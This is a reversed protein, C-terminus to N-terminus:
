DFRVCMSFPLYSGFADLSTYLFDLSSMSDGVAGTLRELYGEILYWFYNLLFLCSIGRRGIWVNINSAISDSFWLHYSRM